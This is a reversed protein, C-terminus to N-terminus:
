IGVVQHCCPGIFVKKIKFFLKQPLDKREEIEILMNANNEVLCAWTKLLSNHIPLDNYKIVYVNQSLYM